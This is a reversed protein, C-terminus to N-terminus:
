AGAAARKRLLEKVARDKDRYVEAVEEESTSETMVRMNNDTIKVWHGDYAYCGYVIGDAALGFFLFRNEVDEDLDYGIFTPDAPTVVVLEIQGDDASIMVSTM